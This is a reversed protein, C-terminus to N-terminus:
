WELQLHITAKYGSNKICLSNPIKLIPNKQKQKVINSHICYRLQRFIVKKEQIKYWRTQPITMKSVVEFDVLWKEAGEICFDKLQLITLFNLIKNVFYNHNPPLIAIIHEFLKISTENSINMNLLLDETNMFLPDEMNM